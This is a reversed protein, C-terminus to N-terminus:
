CCCCYLLLSLLHSSSLKVSAKFSVFM